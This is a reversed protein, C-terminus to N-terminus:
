IRRAGSPDFMIKASDTNERELETDDNSETPKPANLVWGFTVTSTRIPRQAGGAGYVRTTTTNGDIEGPNSNIAHASLREVVGRKFCYRGLLRLRSFIVPKFEANRLHLPPSDTRVLVQNNHGFIGTM